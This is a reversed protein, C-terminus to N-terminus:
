ACFHNKSEEILEYDSVIVMHHLGYTESLQDPGGLVFATRQSWGKTQEISLIDLLEHVRLDPLSHGM